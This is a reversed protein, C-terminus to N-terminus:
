DKVEEYKDSFIHYPIRSKKGNKFVIVDAKSVKEYDGFENRIVPVINTSTKNINMKLVEDIEQPTSVIMQADVDGAKFRICYGDELGQDPEFRVASIIPTKKRFNKIEM